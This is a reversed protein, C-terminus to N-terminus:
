WWGSFFFINWEELRWREGTKTSPPSSTNYFAEKNLKNTTRGRLSLLISHRIINKLIYSFVNNPKLISQYRQIKSEYNFFYLILNLSFHKELCYIFVRVNIGWINLNYSPIWGARSLLSKAAFFYTLKKLILNSKLLSSKQNEFVNTTNCLLKLENKKM